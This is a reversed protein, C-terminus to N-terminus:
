CESGGTQKVKITNCDFRRLSFKLQVYINAQVISLANYMARPGKLNDVPISLDKSHINLPFCWETNQAFNYFCPITYPADM